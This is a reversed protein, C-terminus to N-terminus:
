RVSVPPDPSRSLAPSGKFASRAAGLQILVNAFTILGGGVFLALTVKENAYRIGALRSLWVPLFLAFLSAFVPEAAYILGAEPAPLIPQWRNMLVFAIMTCFLVLVAILVLVPPSSYARTWDSPQRMTVLSVPLAILTMTLFMVLTFHSVRNHGFLPRELWLIQGTFIVSGVLTELEGRGLRFHRWDVGTLIAVGGAAMISCIVILSSPWTRDRVAVVWPLILCCCQTLFASASASTYSLGDVQLIMGLGCCVGLGLGQWLELMRFRPLTRACWALTILTAIGFRVAVMSSAAFWTDEAALLDQHLMGIAKMVPFSTGWFLTALLLMGTARRQLPNSTRPM